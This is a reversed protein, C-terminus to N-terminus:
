AGLVGISLKMSLLAGLCTSLGVSMSRTACSLKLIGGSRRGLRQAGIMEGAALMPTAADGGFVGSPMFGTGVGPANTNNPKAPSVPLRRLPGLM